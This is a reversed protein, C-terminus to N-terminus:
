LAADGVLWWHQKKEKRANKSAGVFTVLFSFVSREPKASKVDFRKLIQHMKEKLFLPRLCLLIVDVCGLRM